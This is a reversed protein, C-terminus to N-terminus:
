SDFDPSASFSSARPLIKSAIYITRASHFNPHIAIQAALKAIRTPAILAACAAHACDSGIVIVKAPCDIIRDSM